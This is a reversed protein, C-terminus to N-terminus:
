YENGSTLTIDISDYSSALTCPLFYTATNVCDNDAICKSHFGTLVINFFLCCYVIIFACFRSIFNNYLTTNGYLNNAILTFSFKDGSFTTENIVIFLNNTVM